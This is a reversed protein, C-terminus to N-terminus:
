APSVQTVPRESPRSSAVPGPPRKFRALSPILALFMFLFLEMQGFYSASIFSVCHAALAASFGWCLQTWLSRPGEAREVAVRTRRLRSFSAGLLLVFMVLTLLGGYVGQRVYYNATDQLHRGWSGSDSTGILAWEGFHGVFADILRYRHYGTGGTVSALRGILHWVPKERILHIFLTMAAVVALITRMQKRLPWLAWGMLGFLLTVLPGTSGSAVTIVVAFLTASAILVRGKKRGRFVAIFIPVLGAGFTGAMIPHSFPGLSRVKGDRVTSLPRATGFVHFVNNRTAMEYAFFLGLVVATWALQRVLLFVEERRRVLVRFLFFVTLADFSAGLRNVIGGTRLVFLIGLSATWLVFFRDVSCAKFGRYERRVLVRGWAVIMILRLMSFDLGAVVLRQMAPMFICVLVVAFIARSRSSFLVLGVMCLMFVVSFPHINTTGYVAFRGTVEQLDDNV